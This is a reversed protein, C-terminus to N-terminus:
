KKRKTKGYNEVKKLYQEVNKEIIDSIYSVSVYTGHYFCNGHLTKQLFLYDKIYDEKIIHASTLLELNRTTAQPSYRIRIGKVRPDNKLKQILGNTSSKVAGWSKEASDRIKEEKDEVKLLEDKSMRFLNRANTEFFVRNFSTKQM